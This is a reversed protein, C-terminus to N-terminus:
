GLIPIPEHAYRGRHILSSQLISSRVPELSYQIPPSQFTLAAIPVAIFPSGSTSPLKLTSTPFQIFNHREGGAVGCVMSV